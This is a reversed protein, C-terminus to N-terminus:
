EFDQESLPQAHQFEYIAEGQNLGNAHDAPDVCKSGKATLLQQYVIYDIDKKIYGTHGDCFAANVGDGHGSAPRAFRPTNPVFPPLKGTADSTVGNIREQEDFDPAVNPVWVVGLQQETGALWTFPAKPSALPVSSNEYDKHINETLMITTSSGDHISSLSSQLKSERDFFVGNDLTDGTNSSIVLDGRRNRPDWGGTNTSYSLGALGIRAKVDSDSPCVFVDVPRIEPGPDLSNDVIQDWIDQRDIRPLLMAAWSVQWANAKDNISRVRVQGGSGVEGAVWVNRGRQVYQSYGPFNGKDTAYAIMALSHQKLNNTCQTQKARERVANVAPLLLAVLMGIITIVVLLEVLTFALRRRSSTSM